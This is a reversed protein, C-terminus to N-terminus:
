LLRCFSNLNEENLAWKIDVMDVAYINFNPFLRLYTQYFIKFREKWDHKNLHFEGSMKRVNNKIWWINEDSFVDWEGGKM